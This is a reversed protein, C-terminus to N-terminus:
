YGYKKLVGSLNEMNVFGNEASTRLIETLFNHLEDDDEIGERCIEMIRTLVPVDMMITQVDSGEGIADEPNRSYLKSVGSYENLMVQRSAEYLSNESKREEM